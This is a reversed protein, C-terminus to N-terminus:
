PERGLFLRRCLQEFVTPNKQRSAINHIQIKDSQSNYTHSSRFCNGCVLIVIIKYKLQPYKDKLILDLQEADDIDNAVRSYTGDPTYHHHCEHGKRCFLIEENTSELLNMFRQCRKMYKEQHEKFVETKDFDHYFYIDYSNMRNDLPETFLQFNDEICRSVGNYAITWDFPFSINRLNHKKLFLAIGCDVGISIIM